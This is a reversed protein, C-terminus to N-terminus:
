IGKKVSFIVVSTFKQIEIDCVCENLLNQFLSFSM